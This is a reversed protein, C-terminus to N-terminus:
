TRSARERSLHAHPRRLGHARRDRRQRRRARRLPRHRAAASTVSVPTTFRPPPSSRTRAPRPSPGTRGTPSSRCRSRCSGSPEFLGAYFRIGSATRTLRGGTYGIPFECDDDPTELRCLDAGINAVTTGSRAAGPAATKRYPRPADALQLVRVRVGRVPQHDAHRAGPRNRLERDVDTPAPRRFAVRPGAAKRPTPRRARRRRARAAPRPPAPSVLVGTVIVAGLGLTLVRGHLTAAVVGAGLAWVTSVLYADEAAPSRSRRASPSCCPRASCAASSGRPAPSPAPPASASPPSTACRPPPSRRSRSASAPATSRGDGAALHHLFAPEAGAGRVIAMGAVYLLCGPVIM